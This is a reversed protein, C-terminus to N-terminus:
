KNGEELNAKCTDLRKQTEILKGLYAQANGYAGERLFTEVKNQLEQVETEYIKIRSERLEAKRSETLRLVGNIDTYYFGTELVRDITRPADKLQYQTYSDVIRAHGTEITVIENRFVYGRASKSIRVNKYYYYTSGYTSRKATMGEALKM